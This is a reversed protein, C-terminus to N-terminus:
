DESQKNEKDPKWGKPMPVKRCRCNYHPKPPFDKLKYIKGDRPACEECVKEDKATVWKAYEVGVDEWAKTEAGDVIDIMYQKTQTYWLNFFRKDEERMISKDKYHLATNLAESLRLRKRESEPEYIYHTVPNLRKELFDLLWLEFIEEGEADFGKREAEKLADAYAVYAVAWFAKYNKKKLRKMLRTTITKVSTAHLEDFGTNDLKVAERKLNSKIKTLERDATQYM